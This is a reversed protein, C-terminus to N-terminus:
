FDVLVLDPTLYEKPLISSPGLCLFLGLGIEFLEGSSKEPSSAGIALLQFSKYTRFYKKLM